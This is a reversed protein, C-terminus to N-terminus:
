KSGDRLTVLAAFDTIVVEKQDIVIINNKHLRTMARSVTEVTLGLYSGIERRSMPLRFRSESFGRTKFRCSLSLLFTALRQGADKKALVLLMHQENCIDKSMVKLIKRRLKPHEASFKDLQEFSSQCITSTELTEVFDPCIGSSIGNLGILDGPFYFGTIQEQGSVDTTYTKISGTKVVFVFQFSDGQSSLIEGKPLAKSHSMITDLRPMEANELIGAICLSSLNCNSCHQEIISAYSYSDVNKNM